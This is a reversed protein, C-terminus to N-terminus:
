DAPTPPPKWPGTYLTDFLDALRVYSRGWGSSFAVENLAGTPLLMFKLEPLRSGDGLHVRSAHDSLDDILEQESDYWPQWHVDQPCSLVISLLEDVIEM